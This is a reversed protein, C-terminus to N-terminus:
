GPFVPIDRHRDRTGAADARAAVGSVLRLPARDNLTVAHADGHRSAGTDLASQSGLAGNPDGAPAQRVPAAARTTRAASAHGATGAALYEGTFWPGQGVAATTRM